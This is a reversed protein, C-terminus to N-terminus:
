AEVTTHFSLGELCESAAAEQALVSATLLVLALWLLDALLLHTLQLWLPALLAVNVLGAGLQVLVLAVLILAYRRVWLRPLRLGAILAVLVILASDTLALLPHLLRLRVFLHATSSFDQNLGATLSSVPFLTDGLATVAGSVALVLTLLLALACLWAIAGRGRLKLIPGGSAWWATLTLVALLVFTNILHVSMSVARFVSADDAVLKFLVLGAGILAETFIFFTSLVAGLRVAHRKPYARFAWVALGIVMILTLGSMMRHTFEILTHTQTADPLVEGNCLPWHSGCGAGSGSARVYAGWLIVLLNWAVVAWAYLAFRKLKM